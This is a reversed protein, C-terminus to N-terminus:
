LQEPELGYKGRVKDLDYREIDSIGKRTYVVNVRDSVLQFSDRDGTVIRVNYGEKEGRCALTGILDDAEYGNMAVIPIKLVGLLDKILKIQPQLEEPMEKRQAKYDDYEKHRFTPAKKDFAVMIYDPKEDDLLKFFMRAFGFVANTYEGSSNQLLPLAYFARHALSHGDLLYLSKCM